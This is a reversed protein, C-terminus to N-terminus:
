DRCDPCLDFIEMTQGTTRAIFELQKVPAWYSGCKQCKQLKFETKKQKDPNPFIMTRTDGEDVMGIANVPCVYYCSGCGICEEAAEYFPAAVERNVGRNVLSIASRGVVEACTRACLGCLICDQEETKFPTGTVGLKQALATIEENHSCRALLLQMLM